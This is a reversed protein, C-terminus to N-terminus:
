RFGALIYSTTPMLKDGLLVGSNTHDFLDIETMSKEKMATLFVGIAAPSDLYKSDLTLLKPIDVQKIAEITVQDRRDADQISLYHSFDVSAVIVTREDVLRALAVGLAHIDAIDMKPKVIIPLIRVLPLYYEIYPVIAGISQENVFAEDDTQALDPDLLQDVFKSNSEVMGFPTEWSGRTTLARFSETNRHNPGVIIVTEPNQYQLASFFRAILGSAVDHHPVIGGMLASDPLPRQEAENVGSYFKVPDLPFPSFSTTWRTDGLIAGDVNTGLQIDRTRTIAFFIGAILLGGAVSSSVRPKM